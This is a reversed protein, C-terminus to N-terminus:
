NKKFIEYFAFLKPLDRRQVFSLYNQALDKPELNYENYLNKIEDWYENDFQNYKQRILSKDSERTTEM